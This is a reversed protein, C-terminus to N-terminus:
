AAAWDLRALRALRARAACCQLRIEITTHEAEMDLAITGKHETVIRRCIELGLGTGHAGKTTFAEHFMARAITDPPRQGADQIRIRADDGSCRLEVQIWPDDLGAMADGANSLLNTLLQILDIRSGELVVPAGVAEVRVPAGRLAPGALHIAADVLEQFHLAQKPAAAPAPARAEATVANSMGTLQAAADEILVTLARLDDLDPTDDELLEHLQEASLKLTTLPSRMDHTIRALHRGVETLRADVDRRALELEFQERQEKQRTRAIQLAQGVTQTRAWTIRTAELLNALFLLPMAYTAGTLTLVLQVLAVVLTLPIGIGLLWDRRGRWAAATLEVAAVTVFGSGTVVTAVGLPSLNLGDGSALALVARSAHHHDSLLLSQGTVAAVVVDVLFLSAILRLAGRALRLRTSLPHNLYVAIADVWRYLSAATALIMLRSVQQKSALDMPILAILAILVTASTVASAFAFLGYVRDQPDQTLRYNPLSSFTFWAFVGCSAAAAVAVAVVYPHLLLDM